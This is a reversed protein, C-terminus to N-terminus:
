VRANNDRRQEIVLFDCAELSANVRTCTIFDFASFQIMMKSYLTFYKIQTAVQLSILSYLVSRYKRILTKKGNREQQSRLITRCMLLILVFVIKTIMHQM